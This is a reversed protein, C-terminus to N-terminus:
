FDEQNFFILWNIMKYSEMDYLPLQPEFTSLPKRFHVSGSTTSNPSVGPNTSEHNLCMSESCCLTIKVLIIGIVLFLYVNQVLQFTVHFYSTQWFIAEVVLLPWRLSFSRETHAFRELSFDLKVWTWWGNGYPSEPGPTLEGLCPSPPLSGAVCAWNRMRFDSILYDTGRGTSLYSEGCSSSMLLPIFDGVLVPFCCPM